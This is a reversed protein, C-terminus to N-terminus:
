VLGKDKLLQEMMAKLDTPQVAQGGRWKDIAEKDKIPDLMEVTTSNGYKGRSLGNAESVLRKIGALMEVDYKTPDDVKVTVILPVLWVKDKDWGTQM